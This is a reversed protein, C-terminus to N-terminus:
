SVLKQELNEESSRYRKLAGSVNNVTFDYGPLKKNLYNTLVTTKLRFKEGSKQKFKSAKSCYDVFEILPIKDGLSSFIVEENWDILKKKEIGLRNKIRQLEMELSKSSRIPIGDHVENNLKKAILTYNPRSRYQFDPNKFYKFFSIREWPQWAVFGNIKHLKHIYKKGLRKKEEIPIAFCGVGKDRCTIGGNGKKEIYSEGLLGIYGKHFDNEEVGALSNRVGSKLISLNLEGYTISKGEIKLAVKDGVREQLNKAVDFLSGNYGMGLNPFHKQLVRGLKYTIGIVGRVNNTGM